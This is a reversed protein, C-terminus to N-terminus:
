HNTATWVSILSCLEPITMTFEFKLSGAWIRLAQRFPFKLFLMSCFVPPFEFTGPSMTSKVWFLTEAEM